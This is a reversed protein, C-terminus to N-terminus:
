HLFDEPIPNDGTEDMWLISCIWWRKGDHFLQISNIGRSKVDVNERGKMRKLYSSFVHAIRGYELTKRSIESEYFSVLSGEEIRKKFSSVFSETDMRDVRSKSVRIFESKETFLSKMRDLDPMTGKKFTISEYLATVIANIESVDRNSIKQEPLVLGPSFLFVFCLIATTGVKKYFDENLM